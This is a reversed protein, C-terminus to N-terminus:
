VQGKPKNKKRKNFWYWAGIVSATIVVAAVVFKADRDESIVETISRRYMSDITNPIIGWDTDELIKGYNVWRNYDDEM